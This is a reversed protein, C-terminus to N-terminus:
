EDQAAEAPEATASKTQADAANGPLALDALRSRVEEPLPPVTLAIRPVALQQLEALAPLTLAKKVSEPLNVRPMKVIPLDAGLPIIANKVQENLAILLSSRIPAIMADLQEATLQPNLHELSSLISLVRENSLAAVMDRLNTHALLDRLREEDVQTLSRLHAYLDAGTPYGLRKSRDGLLQILRGTDLDADSREADRLADAILSLDTGPEDVLDAITRERTTVPLGDLVTVDQEPVSRTSYRVDDHRTQRRKRSYMLIPSPYLDGLQHAWAAAGGGVVVDPNSLREWASNEPESALWAARIEDLRDSPVGPLRYVGTRVRELAGAQERRLLTSRAVGHATAQAATFMGWQGGALRALTNETSGSM